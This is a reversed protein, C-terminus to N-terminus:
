VSIIKDHILEKEWDWGERIRVETEIKHKKYDKITKNLNINYHPRIESKTHAFCCRSGLKCNDGRDCMSTKYKPSLPSRWDVWLGLIPSWQLQQDPNGKADKPQETFVCKFGESLPIDNKDREQIAKQEEITPAIGLDQGTNVSNGVDKKNEEHIVLDLDKIKKDCNVQLEEMENKLTNLVEQLYSSKEMFQSMVKIKEEMANYKKTRIHPM